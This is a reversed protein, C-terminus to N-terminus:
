AAVVPVDCTSKDLNRSSEAASNRETNGPPSSHAYLFDAEIPIRYKKEEEEKSPDPMADTM